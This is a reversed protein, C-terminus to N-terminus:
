ASLIVHHATNSPFFISILCSCIKDISSHGNDKAGSISLLEVDKKQLNQTHACIDFIRKTTTLCSKIEPAYHSCPVHTLFIM